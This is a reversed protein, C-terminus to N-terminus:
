AQWVEPSRSAQGVVPVAIHGGGRCGQHSLGVTPGRGRADSLTRKGVLRLAVELSGCDRPTGQGLRQEVGRPQLSPSCPSLRRQRQSVGPGSWGSACEGAGRYSYLGFLGQWPRCFACRKLPQCAKGRRGGSRPSIGAGRGTIDTSDQAGDREAAPLPCVTSEAAPFLQPTGRPVVATRSGRPSLERRARPGPM